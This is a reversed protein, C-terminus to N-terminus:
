PGDGAGFHLVHFIGLEIRDDLTHAYKGANIRFVLQPDDTRELALAMNDGHGASRWGGAPRTRTWDYM